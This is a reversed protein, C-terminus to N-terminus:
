TRCSRPRHRPRHRTLCHWCLRAPSGFRRPLPTSGELLATLEAINERAAGTQAAIEQEQEELRAPVAGLTLEGGTMRRALHPHLHRDADEVDPRKHGLVGAVRGLRAPARLRAGAQPAADLDREDAGGGM